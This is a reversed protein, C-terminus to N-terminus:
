LDIDSSLDYDALTSSIDFIDGTQTNRVKMGRDKAKKKFAHNVYVNFPRANIIPVFRTAFKSSERALHLAKNPIGEEAMTEMLMKYMDNVTGTVPLVDVINTRNYEAQQILNGYTGSGYRLSWGVTTSLMRLIDESQFDTFVDGWTRENDNEDKGVVMARNVRKWQEEGNADNLPYAAMDSIAGMTVTSAFGMGTILTLAKLSHNIAEAPFEAIQEETLGYDLLKKTDGNQIDRYIRWANKEKIEPFRSYYNTVPLRVRRTWNQVALNINYTSFQYMLSKLDQSSAKDPRYMSNTGHMSETAYTAVKHITKYVKAMDDDSVIDGIPLSQKHTGNDIQRVFDVYKDYNNIFHLIEDPQTIGFNALKREAEGRAVRKGDIEAFLIPVDSEPADLITKLARVNKMVEEMATRANVSSSSLNGTVFSGFATKLLGMDDVDINIGFATNAMQLVKETISFEGAFNAVKRAGAASMDLVQGADMDPSLQAFDANHTNMHRGMIYEDLLFNEMNKLSKTGGRGSYLQLTGKLSNWSSLLIPQQFMEFPTYFGFGYGLAGAWLSRFTDAVKGWRVGAELDEPTNGASRTTVNYLEEMRNTYSNILESDDTRQGLENRIPAIFKAMVDSDDVIGNRMNYIRRGADFAYKRDVDLIDSDMLWMPLLTKRSNDLHSSTKVNAGLKIVKYLKRYKGKNYASFIDLDDDPAEITYYKETVDKGKKRVTRTNERVYKNIDNGMREDGIKTRLHTLFDLAEQRTKKEM